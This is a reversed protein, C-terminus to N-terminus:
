ESEKEIIYLTNSSYKDNDTMHIRMDNERAFITIEETSLFRLEYEKKNFRLLKTSFWETLRTLTHRGEKERDGDRLIIKGGKNLRDACTQLLRRQKEEPLYHLMDNLVFVDSTPLEAESADAALFSLQETKSFCHNAVRIKEEDYDIGLVTREESRFALMYALFGYGCGIDTIQAKRPILSEFLRYDKEMGIKVRLYWELVPGKYTFNKILTYRFYPNLNDAEEVFRAHEQKFYLAIAKTRERLDAGWDQSDTFSIRPLIKCALLARKLYFPDNKSITQAQGHLLVPLIDAQLSEALFFAGKHFRRIRGDESRSGEPFIAISYGEKLAESAAEGVQEYGHTVDIFGAYRAIRGFLPSHSVWWKTVMVIRPSLALLQMIDVVSQHNAILVAPRKLDEDPPLFLRPKRRMVWLLFGAFSYILYHFCQKKKREPLPILVFLYSLLTLLLSGLAFIGLALSTTLLSYWTHPFKGRATRGSILLRFVLPQLTYAVLVVSFMGIISTVSVSYLAPHRSFVMAGLGVLVTFASFFIATKHAHLMKRGDKYESLLGDTIFISFDDGIGFIFTSIIINIINFEIGFLAMLGLIIVWSVAMPLFTILTIEIRGYSILISAFVLISVLYLIMNFDDNVVGAMKSAFYPKDLIVVHGTSDFAQYISEKEEELLRVQSILMVSEGSTEMWESLLGAEAFGGKEYDIPEYEKELSSFFPAFASDKFGYKRGSEPLYAKLQEKKGKAWYDNWLAIRRTQEEPSVLLNQASSFEKIRGQEQLGQLTKNTERYYGLTESLSDGVTIFYVTKYEDQFERDLIKETEQFEPSLYSLQNMDSSFKVDDYYIVGVLTLLAIVGILWYNRDFPYANWREIWRMLRTEKGPKFVLLHPLVILCFLTTGILTFCSFLGFDHLIESKSFTLGAFAGITTFSGITMPYSLEKIIQEASRAHLSHCFLHISYSFAVGLIASGAGVAITSISGQLCSMVALSFLGGFAVPLVILPIASKRRFAFLVVLAILVLTFSMSILSDAKIQRANGVSIPVAGYYSIRLDPYVQSFAAVTAELEKVFPENRGMDGAGFRPSIFAILHKGGPSFIHDDYLEYRLNLQLDSLYLLSKGALGLPDTAIYKKSVMSLPSLLNRYNQELRQDIREPLLLSDLGRYDATDLFLPLNDTIYGSMAEMMGADVKSFIKQIHTRGMESARLTDMLAECAEIMRDPSAEQLSDAASVLFVIKDKVKIHRFVERINRDNDTAPMFSNIDEEFRIKSAAYLVVALVALLLSYFLVKRRGFFSYIGLFFAIM